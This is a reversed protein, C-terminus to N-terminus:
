GSAAPPLPLCAAVACTTPDTHQRLALAFTPLIREPSSGTPLLLTPYVAHPVASRRAFWFTMAPLTHDWFGLYLFCLVPMMWVVAPDALPPLATCGCFLLSRAFRLHLGCCTFPVPVVRQFTRLYLHTRCASRRYHARVTGRQAIPIYGHHTTITGVGSPPRLHRLRLRAFPFRAAFWM